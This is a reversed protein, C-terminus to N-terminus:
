NPDTFTVLRLLLPATENSESFAKELIDDELKCANLMIVLSMLLAVIVVVDAESPITVADDAKIAPNFTEPEAVTLSMEAEETVATFISLVSILLVAVILLLTTMLLLKDVVFATTSLRFTDAITLM